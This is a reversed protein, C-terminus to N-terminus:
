IQRVPREIDAQAPGFLEVLFFGTFGFKIDDNRVSSPADRRGVAFGVRPAWGPGPNTPAVAGPLPCGAR